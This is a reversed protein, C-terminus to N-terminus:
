QGTENHRNQLEELAGLGNANRERQRRLGATFGRAQALVGGDGAGEDNPLGPGGDAQQRRASRITTREEM